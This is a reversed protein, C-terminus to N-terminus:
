QAPLCYGALQHEHLWLDVDALLTAAAATADSSSSSSSVEDSPLFVTAPWNTNMINSNYWAPNSGQLLLLLLLV